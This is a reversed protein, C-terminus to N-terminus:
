HFVEVLEITVTLATLPRNPRGDGRIPRVTSQARWTEFAQQYSDFLLAESLKSTYEVLGFGDMGNPDYTRVYTGVPDSPPVVEKTKHDRFEGAVAVVQIVYFVGRKM